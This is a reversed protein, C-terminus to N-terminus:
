PAVFIRRSADHCGAGHACSGSPVNTMLHSNVGHSVTVTVNAPQTFDLPSSTYFNGAGNTTVVVDPNMTGDSIVVRVGALGASAASDWAPYVTGAATFNSHCDLCAQGPNMTASGQGKTGSSGSAGGCAALLLAAACPAFAPRLSM